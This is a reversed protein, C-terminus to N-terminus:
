SSSNSSLYPSIRHPNSGNDEGGYQRPRRYGTQRDRVLLFGVAEHRQEIALVEGSPFHELGFAIAPAGLVAEENGGPLAAAPQARILLVGIEDQAQFVLQRGAAIAADIQTRRVGPVNAPHAHLNLQQVVVM